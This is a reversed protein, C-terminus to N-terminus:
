APEGGIQELLEETKEKLLAPDGKTEVNLRIVPETNSARLNFRWKDFAVSLGDLTDITGEHYRERLKKFIAQSDAVKRNIEGSCPFKAEMDGVLESLKKGSACVIELVLLATIMGSDCYTFERYYHHSSMEGGYIVNNDRMCQKMFAHGSKSRVPVGGYKKIIAETNWVLRPDYMIKSGPYRRLFSEALLGVLYYGEIFKGKEDCFFCRDFDGDWAIGLDAHTALVADSTQKRSADLMPNPVGHPFTGDPEFNVKEFTFPLRKEL